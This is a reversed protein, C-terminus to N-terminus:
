TSIDVLNYNLKVSKKPPAGALCQMDRVELGSSEMQARLEALKQNALSRTHDVDAWFKASVVGNCVKLQSSLQGYDDLDFEMLVEWQQVKESPRNATQQDSEADPDRAWYEHIHIGISTYGDPLRVPIEFFGGHSSPASDGMRQNLSQLQQTQVKALASSVQQQINQLLQNRLEAAGQKEKAPTKQLWGLFSFILSDVAGVPKVSTLPATAPVHSQLTQLAHLLAAKIDGPVSQGSESPARQSADVPLLPNHSVQLPGPKSATGASGGVPATGSNDSNANAAPRSVQAALKAEFAVGSQQLAQRLAEPQSLQSPTQATAQIAALAQRVATPIVQTQTQAPVTALQADLRGLMQTLVKLSSQQPLSARLAAAITQLQAQQSVGNGASVSGPAPTPPAPLLQLQGDARMIVNIAQQLKLAQPSLAYLQRSGAQLEVLNLQPQKLWQSLQAKADALADASAGANGTSQAGQQIQAIQQQLRQLAQQREAPSLPSVDSVLAALTQGAKLATVESVAKAEAVNHQQLQHLASQIIPPLNM